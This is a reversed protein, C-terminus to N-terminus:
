YFGVPFWKYYLERLKGKQALRSLAINIVRKIDGADKGVAISMGTGFYDEDWFAGDVFKCCPNQNLWFSARMGDVFAFDIEGLRVAELAQLENEFQVTELNPFAGQIFQEHNTGKRVGVKTNLEHLDLEASVFGPQTVFRGPLKIYTQTFDFRELWEGETALGAIIADGQGNEISTNLQAWPWAQLTCDIKLEACIARTLDIHYGILNGEGDEFNFPAFDNTTLFRISPVRALEIVDEHKNLNFHMPTQQAAAMTVCFLSIALLQVFWMIRRLVPMGVFKMKSECQM